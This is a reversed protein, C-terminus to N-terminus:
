GNIKNNTNAITDELMMVYLTSLLILRSKFVIEGIEGTALFKWDDDIVAIETLDPISLGSSNPRDLYDQGRNITGLATTETM